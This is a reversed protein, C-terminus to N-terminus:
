EETQSFYAEYEEQDVSGDGNEDAEDMEPFESASLKGDGDKDTSEFSPPPKRETPADDEMAEDGGEPLSTSIASTPTGSEGGTTGAEPLEGVSVPEPEREYGFKEMRFFIDQEQYPKYAVFLKHSRVPLGSMWSYVEVISTGDEFTESPAKGILEQVEEKALFQDPTKNLETSRSEIKAFAEEVAPRAIRYDYALAACMLGLVVLLLTTRGKSSPKATEQSTEADNTM